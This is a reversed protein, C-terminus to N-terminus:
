RLTLFVILVKKLFLKFLVYSCHLCQLSTSRSKVMLQVIITGAGQGRGQDAGEVLLCPWNEELVMGQQQPYCPQDTAWHPSESWWPCAPSRSTAKGWGWLIADLRVGECMRDSTALPRACQLHEILTPGSNNLGSSNYKFDLNWIMLVQWKYELIWFMKKRHFNPRPHLHSNLVGGLVWWGSLLGGLREWLEGGPGM